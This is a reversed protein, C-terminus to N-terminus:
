QRAPHDRDHEERQRRDAQRHEQSDRILGVRDFAEFAQRNHKAPLSSSLAIARVLNDGIHLAVEMTMTRKDGMVETDVLLANGIEPIQDAAFEVDVVPGIVRAVRGVGGAAAQETEIVTATM